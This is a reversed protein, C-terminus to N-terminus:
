TLKPDTKQTALRTLAVAPPYHGGEIDALDEPEAAGPLATVPRNRPIVLVRRPSGSGPSRPAPPHRASQDVPGFGPLPAPQLRNEPQLDLSHLWPAVSSFPHGRRPSGRLCQDSRRAFPLAPAPPHRASQDVPGFGPLPAPQLRDTTAPQLSHLWPAVLTCRRFFTGVARPVACASTAADQAAGVHRHPMRYSCNKRLVVDIHGIRKYETRASTMASAAHSDARSGTSAPM